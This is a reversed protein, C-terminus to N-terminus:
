SVQILTGKFITLYKFFLNNPDPFSVLVLLFHFLKSEFQSQLILDLLELVGSERDEAVGKSREHEESQIYASRELEGKSIKFQYAHIYFFKIDVM